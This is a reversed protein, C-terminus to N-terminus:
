VTLRILGHLKAGLHPSSCENTHFLRGPHTVVAAMNSMHSHVVLSSIEAREAQASSVIIVRGMGPHM